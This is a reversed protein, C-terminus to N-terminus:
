IFTVVTGDKETLPSGERANREELKEQLWGQLYSAYDSNYYYYYPMWINENLWEDDILQGIMEIMFRHKAEGYTGFFIDAWESPRTLMDVFVINRYLKYKNVSLLFHENEELVIRLTRASEQLSPDRLLIIPFSATAAGAPIVYQAKVQPDDFPVFHVGSVADENGDIASEQKFTVTRPYDRVLGEAGMNIWLTYQTTNESDFVFSYTRLTDSGVRTTFSIRDNGSWTSVEKECSLALVGAAIAVIYKKIYNIKKM